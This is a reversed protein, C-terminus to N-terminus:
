NFGNQINLDVQLNNIKNLNNKQYNDIIKSYNFSNYENNCNYITTKSLKKKRLNDDIKQFNFINDNPIVCPESIRKKIGDFNNRSENLNSEIQTELTNESNYDNVSNFLDDNDLFTNFDFVNENEFSKEWSNEKSNESNSNIQEENNQYVEKKENNLDAM